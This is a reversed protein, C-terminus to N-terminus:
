PSVAAGSSADLYRHGGKDILYVGDGRVATPYSQRLSRHLVHSAASSQLADNM